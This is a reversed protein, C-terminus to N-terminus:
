HYTKRSVGALLAVYSLVLLLTAYGLYFTTKGYSQFICAICLQTSNAISAGLFMMAYLWYMWKRRSVAEVAERAHRDYSHIGFVVTLALTVLLRGIQLWNPWHSADFVHFVSGAICCALEVVGRARGCHCAGGCSVVRLECSVVRLECSM